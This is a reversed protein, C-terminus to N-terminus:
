IAGVQLAIIVQAGYYLPLGIRANRSTKAVFQERAVFVDSLAFMAAGLLLWPSGVAGAAAVMAAIAIVYARVPARMPGPVEPMLWHLVIGAIAAMMAIGIGLAFWDLGRIWFAATYALHALLFTALGAVFYPTRKGTLLLDGLWSLGLGAVIAIAFASEVGTSIALYVMSSSAVMKAAAALVPRQAAILSVVMAVAIIGIWMWM